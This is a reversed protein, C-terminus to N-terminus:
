FKLAVIKAYVQAPRPSRSVPMAAWMERLKASQNTPIFGFLAALESKRCERTELSGRIMLKLFNNPGERFVFSLAWIKNSM